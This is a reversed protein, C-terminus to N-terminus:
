TANEVGIFNELREPFVALRRKAIEVYKPNLEIGIYHRRLIKCAVLTTGSGAFPDLVIDGENSSCDILKIILDLPKQARHLGKPQPYEFVDFSKKYKKWAYETIKKGHKATEGKVAYIIADWTSKWRDKGYSKYASYNNKHYWVCINKLKFERRIFGEIGYMNMPAFFSMYHDVM